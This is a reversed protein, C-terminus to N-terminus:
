RIVYASSLGGISSISTVNQVSDTTIWGSTPPSVVTIVAEENESTIVKLFNGTIPARGAAPVSFLSTSITIQFFM